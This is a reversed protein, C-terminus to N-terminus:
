ELIAFLFSALIMVGGVFMYKINRKSTGAVKAKPYGMIAFVLFVIGTILPIIYNLLKNYFNM